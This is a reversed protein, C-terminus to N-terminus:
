PDFDTLLKTMMLKFRKTYRFGGRKGVKKKGAAFQSTLSSNTRV